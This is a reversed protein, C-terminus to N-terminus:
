AQRCGVSLRNTRIEHKKRGKGKKFSDKWKDVRRLRTVEAEPIIMLKMVAASALM